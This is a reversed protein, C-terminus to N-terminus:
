PDGKDTFHPSPPVTKLAQSVKYNVILMYGDNGGAQCLASLWRDFAGPRGGDGCHDSHRQHYTLREKM